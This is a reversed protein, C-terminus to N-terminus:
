KFDVSFLIDSMTKENKAYNATPTYAYVVYNGHSSADIASMILMSMEHGNIKGVAGVYYAEIDGIQVYHAEGEPTFDFDALAMELLDDASIKDNGFVVATSGMTSDPSMTGLKTSTNETIIWESPLSFVMKGDSSTLKTWDAEVPPKIEKKPESSKKVETKKKSDTKTETTKKDKSETTSTKDDKKGCGSILFLFMVVLALSSHLKM